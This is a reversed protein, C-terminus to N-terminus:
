YRRRVTAVPATPYAVLVGSGIKGTKWLHHVVGAGVLASVASVIATVMTSPNSRRNSRHAM